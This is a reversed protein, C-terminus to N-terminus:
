INSANKWTWRFSSEQEEEREQEHMEFTNWFFIFRNGRKSIECPVVFSLMLITCYLALHFKHFDLLIMSLQGIDDRNLIIVLYNNVSSNVSISGFQRNHNCSLRGNHFVLCFSASSNIIPGEFLVSYLTFCRCDGTIIIFKKHINELFLHSFEWPNRPVRLTRTKFLLCWVASHQLRRISKVRVCKLRRKIIRESSSHAIWSNRFPFQSTMIRRQTFKFSIFIIM